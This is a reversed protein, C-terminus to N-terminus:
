GEILFRLRSDLNEIDKEVEMIWRSLAANLHGYNSLPRYKFDEKRNRENLICFPEGLKEHYEVDLLFLKELKDESIEKEVSSFDFTRRSM